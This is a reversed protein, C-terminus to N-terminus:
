KKWHAYIFEPSIGTSRIIVGELDSKKLINEYSYYLPVIPMQTLILKEAKAMANMRINNDNTSNAIKILKDYESNSWGSNNYGGKSHWINIFTIPDNFEPHWGSYVMDFDKNKSRELRNQFTNPELTINIDLNKRLEEQIFQGDRRHADTQDILFNFNVKGTFGIEELGEKLLKKAKEVNYEPISNVYEERYSKDTNLSIGPTVVAYAPESGDKRVFKCFTERDIAMSIAQRIKENKFFRNNLNFELYYISSPNKIIEKSNEFQPLQDGSIITMDLTDNKYMNAATNFDEILLYTLMETKPLSKNWYFENREFIFKGGHIWKTIKWPGNYLLNNAELAFLAGKSNYFKENIPYFLTQTLLELFFACPKELTIHLEYDNVAKIGVQNFDKIKNSNFKEANKIYYLLYSFQSGTEPLLTRKMGFVFDRATVSEGNSWKANKRLNFVWEKGDKNVKWSKAVGPLIEGPRKGTRVLGELCSGLVQTAPVDTRLSPDISNPSKQLNFVIPKRTSTLNVSKNNKSLNVDDKTCGAQFTTLIVAFITSLIKVYSRKGIIFM